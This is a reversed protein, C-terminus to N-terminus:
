LCVDELLVRFCLVGVCLALLLFEWSDRRSIPLLHLFSSTCLGFPFLVFLFKLDDFSFVDSGGFISRSGDVYIFLLLTHHVTSTM